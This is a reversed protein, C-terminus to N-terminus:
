RVPRPSPEALTHKALESINKDSDHTMIMITPRGDRALWSMLLGRCRPDAPYMGLIPKVEPLFQEQLDAGGLNGLAFIAWWRSESDHELQTRLFSSDSSSLRDIRRQDILQGVRKMDEASSFGLKAALERDAPEITPQQRSALLWFAASIGLTASVVYLPRITPLLKM